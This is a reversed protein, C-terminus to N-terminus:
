YRRETVHAATSFVVRSVSLDWVQARMAEGSDVLQRAANELAYRNDDTLSNITPGTGPWPQHRLQFM